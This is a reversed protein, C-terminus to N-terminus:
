SKRHRAIARQKMENWNQDTWEEAPGSNLGELLAAEIDSRKKRAADVLAVIYESANAFQGGSIKAEIFKRLDDPLEVPITSMPLDGVITIM